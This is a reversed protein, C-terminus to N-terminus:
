QSATEPDLANLKEVAAVRILVKDATVFSDVIGNQTLDIAVALQLSDLVLASGHYGKSVSELRIM